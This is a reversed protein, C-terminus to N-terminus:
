LMSLLRPILVVSGKPCLQPRSPIFLRILLLGLQLMANFSACHLPLVLVFVSLCDSVWGAAEKDDATLLQRLLGFVPGEEM